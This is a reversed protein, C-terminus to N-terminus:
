NGNENFFKLIFYLLTIPWFTALVVVFPNFGYGDKYDKVIIATTTIIAGIVWLFLIVETEGGSSQNIQGEPPVRSESHYM